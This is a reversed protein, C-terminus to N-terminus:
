IPHERRRAKADDQEPTTLQELGARVNRRTHGEIIGLLMTGVGEEIALVGADNPTSDMYHKGSLETGPM